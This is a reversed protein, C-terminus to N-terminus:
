RYRGDAIAPVEDVAATLRDLASEEAALDSRQVAGVIASLSELKDGYNDALRVLAERLDRNDIRAVDAALGSHAGTLTEIAGPAERLFRALDASLYADLFTSAAENWVALRDGLGRVVALDDTTLGGSDGACEVEADPILDRMEQFRALGADLSVFAASVDSATGSRVSLMVLAAQRYHWVGDEYAWFADAYCSAPPHSKTWDLEAEAPQIVRYAFAVLEDADQDAPPPLDRFPATVEAGNEEGHTKWAAFQELWEDSPISPDVPTRPPSTLAAPTPTSPSTGPQSTPEMQGATPPRPAATGEADTGVSSTPAIPTTTVCAMLVLALSVAALAGRAVSSTM